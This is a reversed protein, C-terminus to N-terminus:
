LERLSFLFLERNFVGELGKQLVQSDEEQQFLLAEAFDPSCVGGQEPIYGNGNVQWSM